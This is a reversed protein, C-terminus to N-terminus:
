RRWAVYFFDRESAKSVYRDPNFELKPIITSALRAPGGPPHEVFFFRTYSWNIDLEAADFAGAAKVAHALQTATVWDGFAYFLTRGEADLGIASRRIERDGGQAAGWKRSAHEQALRPNLEGQEVLCPPTQRWGRMKSTEGELVSWTRIRIGGDGYLGVVCADEKPPVYVFGDSMMGYRGHESKFGGNFIAVLADEDAAPVLGSRREEPVDKKAPEDTGALLRLELERRDFAVVMLFPWGKVADTHITSAYIAHRGERDGEPRPQWRGDGPEATRPHPPLYDAPPFRGAASEAPPPAPDVIAPAASAAATPPAPLAPGPRASPPPV